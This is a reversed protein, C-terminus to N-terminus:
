IKVNFKEKLKDSLNAENERSAKEIMASGIYYLKGRQKMRRNVSSVFSNAKKKSKFKNHPSLAFAEEGTLKVSTFTTPEGLEDKITKNEYTIM